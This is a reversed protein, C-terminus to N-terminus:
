TGNYQFSQVKEVGTEVYMMKGRERTRQKGSDNQNKNENQYENEKGEEREGETLKMRYTEGKRAKRDREHTLGLQRGFLLSPTYLTYM